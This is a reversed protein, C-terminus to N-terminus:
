GVLFSLLSGVTLGIVLCLGMFGGAVEKEDDAVLPAAGMMAGSGVFGNSVGSGLQVIFLYFADSRIVAHGRFNCLLYLPIFIMRLVSLSFLVRPKLLPSLSPLLVLLRGILDGTNWFLYALPIFVNLRFIRPSPTPRISPTSAIFVFMFMTGAFVLIVAASLHPLKKLLTWLSVNPSDTSPLGSDTETYAPPKSPRHSYHHRLLYLFAALSIFSVATATLFYAFASKPSAQVPENDRIALRDPKHLSSEDGEPVSLV